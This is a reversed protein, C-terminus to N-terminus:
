MIRASTHVGCVTAYIQQQSIMEDIGRRLKATRIDALDKVLMRVQDCDPIDDSASCYIHCTVTYYLSCYLERDSSYPSNIAQM